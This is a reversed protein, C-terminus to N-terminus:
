SINKLFDDNDNTYKYTEIETNSKVLQHVFNTSLCSDFAVSLRIYFFAVTRLCRFYKKVAVNLKLYM